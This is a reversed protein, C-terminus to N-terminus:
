YMLPPGSKRSLALGCIILKWFEFELFGVQGFDKCIVTSKQQIKVFGWIPIAMFMVVEGLETAWDWEWATVGVFYEEEAIGM